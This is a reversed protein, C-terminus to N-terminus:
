QSVGVPTTTIQRMLIAVVAQVAPVYTLYAEPIIGLVDPSALVLLVATLVNVLHSRYGKM